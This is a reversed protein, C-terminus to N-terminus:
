HTINKARILKLREEREPLFVIGQSAGAFQKNIHVPPFYCERPLFHTYGLRLWEDPYEM